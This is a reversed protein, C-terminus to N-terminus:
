GHKYKRWIRDNYQKQAKHRNRWRKCGRIKANYHAIADYFPNRWQASHKSYTRAKM